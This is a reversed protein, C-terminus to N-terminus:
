RTNLLPAPREDKKSHIYFPCLNDNRRTDQTQPRRAATRPPGPFERYMYLTCVTITRRDRFQVCLGELVDVSFSRYVIKAVFTAFNRRFSIKKFM